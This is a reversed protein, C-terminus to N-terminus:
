QGGSLREKARLYELAVLTSECEGWIAIRDIARDVARALMDEDMKKSAALRDEGAALLQAAERVFRARSQALTRHPLSSFIKYAQDLIDEMSQVAEVSLDVPASPAATAGVPPVGSRTPQGTHMAIAAARKQEELVKYTKWEERSGCEVMRFTIERGTIQKLIQEILNRHEPVRLHGSRSYNEGSFGIVLAPPQGEEFDLVVAAEMAQWVALSTIRKKVQDTALQWLKELRDLDSVM